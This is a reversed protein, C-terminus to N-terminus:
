AGATQGHATFSAKVQGVRIGIGAAGYDLGVRRTWLVFPDAVPEPATFTTEPAGPPVPVIAPITVTPTYEGAIAGKKNRACTEALGNGNVSWFLREKADSPKKLTPNPLPSVILWTTALPTM